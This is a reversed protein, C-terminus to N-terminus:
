IYMYIRMVSDSQQVGSILMVNYILQVEIFPFRPSLGEYAIVLKCLENQSKKGNDNLM